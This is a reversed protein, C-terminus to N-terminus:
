KANQMEVIRRRIEALAAETTDHDPGSEDAKRKREEFEFILAREAKLMARLDARRSQEARFVEGDPSADSALFAAVEDLTAGTLKYQALAFTDGTRVLSLGRLRAVDHLIQERQDFEEDPMKPDESPALLFERGFASENPHEQHAYLADYDNGFVSFTWYKTPLIGCRNRGVALPKPRRQLRRDPGFASRAADGNFFECSGKLESPAARM